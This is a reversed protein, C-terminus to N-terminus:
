HCYIIYIESVVVFNMNKEIYKSVKSNLTTSYLQNGVPYKFWRSPQPKKLQKKKLEDRGQEDTEKVMM